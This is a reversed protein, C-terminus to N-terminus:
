GVITLTGDVTLTGVVTLEDTIVLGHGTCVTFEDGTAITNLHGDAAIYLDNLVGGELLDRKSWFYRGVWSLMEKVTM